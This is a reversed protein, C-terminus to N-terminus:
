IVGGRLGALLVDLTRRLEPENDPRERVFHPHHFTATAALFVRAAAEPDDVRFAGTRAGAEIIHTVQARLEAVHADVVARAAQALTQYTAFLEPEDLVKRRKTEALALMWRRLRDGPDGPEEAIVALPATIRHLWRAAVADQLAAKSEFHRYVNAHSMGLRRAVDVVNTKAPGHRRLL